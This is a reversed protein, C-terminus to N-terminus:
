QSRKYNDHTQHDSALNETVLNRLAPVLQEEFWSNDKLRRNNRWSPHPLPFYRPMQSSGVIAKWDAVTKTVSGRWIDGLHWKQAYGGVVLILRVQPMLAMIQAHWTQCCEKRPPLDAGFRDQGPFCFGMPIIAFKSPDYFEAKDVKLWDRLRDGSPDSFPIGSAAVRTGPAQGCIAIRAVQSAVLVPRPDVPM